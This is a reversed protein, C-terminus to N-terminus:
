TFATPCRRTVGSSRAAAASCRRSRCGGSTSSPCRGTTSCRWRRRRRSPPICFRSPMAPIPIWWRTCTCKGLGPLIGVLFTDQNLLEGPRESRIHRERFAPNQQVVFAVQEEMLQIMRDAAQRELRLWRGQRSDLGYRRLILQVTPAKVPTGEGKLLGVLRPVGWTPHALCLAVVREMLEEPVAQRGHYLIQPSVMSAMDLVQFHHQYTYRLSGVAGQQRYAAAMDALFLTLEQLNMRRGLLQAAPSPPASQGSPQEGTSSAQGQQMYESEKEMATLCVFCYVPEGHFEAWMFKKCRSCLFSQWLPKDSRRLDRDEAM